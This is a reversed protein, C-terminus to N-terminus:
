GSRGHPTEALTAASSQAGLPSMGRQWRRTPSVSVLVFTNFIQTLISVTDRLGKEATAWPYLPATEKPFVELILADPVWGGATVGWDRQRARLGIGCLLAALSCACAGVACPVGSSVSQSSVSFPLRSHSPRSPTSASWGPTASPGSATTSSRALATM